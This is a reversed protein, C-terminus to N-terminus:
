VAKPYKVDWSDKPWTSQHFKTFSSNLQWVTSTLSKIEGEVCQLVNRRTLLYILYSNFDTKNTEAAQKLSSLLEEPVRLGPINFHSEQADDKIDETQPLGAEAFIKQTMISNSGHTLDHDLLRLLIEVSGTHTYDVSDKEWNILSQRSVGILQAFDAQTLNLSKRIRVIDAPGLHNAAKQEWREYLKKWRRLEKADYSKAACAECIDVKADSVLFSKEFLTVEFDKITREHVQGKGCEECLYSM